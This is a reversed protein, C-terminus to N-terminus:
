LEYIGPIPKIWVAPRGQTDAVIAWDRGSARADRIVTELMEFEWPQYVSTLPALGRATAAESNLLRGVATIATPALTAADM